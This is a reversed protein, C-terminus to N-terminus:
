PEMKLAPDGLLVWGLLVDLDGRAEAAYNRKSETMAEGITFGPAFLSTYLKQGLVREHNAQTLTSAGLVAAAGQPGSLLLKHAMTQANTAVYWSNWCGWQAVLTPRGLNTLATADAGTFLSGWKSLSWQAYSSHGIFSTLAVGGNITRTLLSKAATLGLTDLYVKEVGAEWSLPLEAIMTDSDVSFDHESGVDYQDAAFLSTRAYDKSQGYLLTKDVVIQLETATRVPLRGIALDPVKDGDVDAFLPDVPAFRVIGPDTEAYLSPLFSFTGLGLYNHYDTTDGGVLLVWRTGLNHYAYRIYDRIADAGWIGDGFGAYVADTGVVKVSYGDAKRQNVLRDLNADIFNPHAIVLYTAKGNVLDRTEPIPEIAPAKIAAATVIHYTAPGAVGPIRVSYTSALPGKTEVGVLRNVSDGQERYVRVDASALQSV